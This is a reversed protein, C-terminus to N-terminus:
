LDCCMKYWNALKAMKMLSSDTYENMGKKLEIEYDIYM